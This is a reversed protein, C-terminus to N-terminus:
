LSSMVSGLVVLFAISHWLTDYFTGLYDTLLIDYFTESIHPM